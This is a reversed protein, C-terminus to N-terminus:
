SAEVSAPRGADAPRPRSHPPRILMISVLLIWIFSGFRGVPLLVNAAPLQLSIVSFLSAVAVVIGLWAVWRAFLGTKLAAVSPAGVLAALWVVHGVGGTLFPVYRLAPLVGPTEATVPIALMGSFLASLLQFVVALVGGGLTLWALTSSEDSAKRVAAALDVAFALLPIAVTAQLLSVLQMKAQFATLDNIPSDPMASQGPALMGPVTISVLFLAVFLVGSLALPNAWNAAMSFAPGPRRTTTRAFATSMEIEKETLRHV